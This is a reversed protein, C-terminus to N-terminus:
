TCIVGTEITCTSSCGDGVFVNGDDCAETGIRRGDGCVTRCVSTANVDVCKYGVEIACQLSCGDGNVSNGDDCEENM